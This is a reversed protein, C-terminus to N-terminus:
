FNNSKSKLDWAKPELYYVLLRTCRAQVYSSLLISHASTQSKRKGVIKVILHKVKQHYFAKIKDSFM